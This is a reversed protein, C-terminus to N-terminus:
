RPDLQFTDLHHAVALHRCGLRNGDFFEGGSLVVVFPHLDPSNDTGNGGISPSGNQKESHSAITELHMGKSFELGLVQDIGRDCDGAQCGSEDIVFSLEDSWMQANAAQRIDPDLLGGGCIREVLVDDGCRVKEPKRRFLARPMSHSDLSHNGELFRPTRDKEAIVLLAQVDLGSL